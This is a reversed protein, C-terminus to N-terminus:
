QYLFASQWPSRPRSDLVPLPANESLRMRGVAADSTSLTNIRCTITALCDVHHTTWETCILESMVRAYAMSCSARASHHSASLLQSSLSLRQQSILPSSLPEVVPRSLVPRGPDDPYHRYRASRSPNTPIIGGRDIGSAGIARGTAELCTGYEYAPVAKHLRTSVMGDRSLVLQDM